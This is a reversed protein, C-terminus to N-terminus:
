GHDPGAPRRKRHSQVLRHVGAAVQAARARAKGELVRVDSEFADALDATARIADDRRRILLWAVGALLAAGIIAPGLWAARTAEAFAYLTLCAALGAGAIPLALRGLGFWAGLGGAAVCLASGLGAVWRARQRDNAATAAEARVQAERAVAAEIRAMDAAQAATRADAELRLKGLEAALRAHYDARATDGAARAEAAEIGASTERARLDAVEAAAPPAPPDRRKDPVDGCAVLLGLLGVLLAAGVARRNSDSDSGPRPVRHPHPEFARSEEDALCPRSRLVDCLDRLVENGRRHLNALQEWQMDLRKAMREERKWDRWVFFAFLLVIPGFEKAATLLDM